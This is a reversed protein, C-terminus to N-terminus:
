CYFLGPWIKLPQEGTLWDGLFTVCLVQIISLVGVIKYIIGVPLNEWTKNEGLLCLVSAFTPLSM